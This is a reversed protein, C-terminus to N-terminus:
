LHTDELLRLAHIFHKFNGANDWRRATIILIIMVGGQFGPFIRESLILDALCDLVAQKFHHMFLEILLPTVIM